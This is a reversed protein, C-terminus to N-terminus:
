KDNNFEKQTDSILTELNCIKEARLETYGKFQVVITPKDAITERLIWSEVVPKSIVLFFIPSYNSADKPPKHVDLYSYNEAVSDLVYFATESPKYTLLYYFM